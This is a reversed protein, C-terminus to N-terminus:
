KRGESDGHLLVHSVSGRIPGGDKARSNIRILRRGAIAAPSQLGVSSALWTENFGFGIAGFYLNLCIPPGHVESSGPGTVDDCHAFKRYRVM